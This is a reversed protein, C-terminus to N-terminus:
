KSVIISRTQTANGARLTCYYIGTALDSGSLVYRKEGADMTGTAVTRV